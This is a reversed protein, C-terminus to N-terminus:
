NGQCRSSSCCLPIHTIWFIEPPHWTEPPALWSSSCSSRNNVLFSSRNQSTISLSLGPQLSLSVPPKLPRLLSLFSLLLTCLRSKQCASKLKNLLTPPSIGHFVASLPFSTLSAILDRFLSTSLSSWIWCLAVLITLLNLVQATFLPQPLQTQEPHLLFWKPLMFCCGALVQPYTKSVISDPKECNHIAYPCSVITM